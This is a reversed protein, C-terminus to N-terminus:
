LSLASVNSSLRKFSKDLDTVYNIEKLADESVNELEPIEVDYAMFWEVLKEPDLLAEHLEAKFARPLSQIMSRTSASLRAKDLIDQVANVKIRHMWLEQDLEKVKKSTLEGIQDKLFSAIAYIKSAERKVTNTHEYLTALELELSLYELDDTTKDLTRNARQINIWSKRLTSVRAALERLAQKYCGWTTGGNKIIMFSSIQTDDHGSYCDKLLESIKHM